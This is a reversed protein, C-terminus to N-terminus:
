SKNAQSETSAMQRRHSWSSKQKWGICNLARKSVSSALRTTSTTKQLSPSSGDFLLALFAVASSAPVLLSTIRTNFFFGFDGSLTAATVMEMGLNVEVEVECETALTAPSPLPDDDDDLEATVAVAVGM